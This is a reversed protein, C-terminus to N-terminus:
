DGDGRRKRHVTRMLREDLEAPDWRSAGALTSLEEPYAAYTFVRNVAEVMLEKMEADSIRSLENWAIEGFPTVVKVDSWDGSATQPFVGAHLDEIKTNRFCVEVMSRATLDLDRRDKASPDARITM